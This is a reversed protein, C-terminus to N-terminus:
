LSAIIIEWIPYVIISKIKHIIVMIDAQDQTIIAIITILVHSIIIEM